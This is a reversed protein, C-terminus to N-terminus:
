FLRGQMDNAIAANKPVPIGLHKYGLETAVRGRQTRNIFGLQLLYPEYVDELTQSDEAIVDALTDLGVPGGQFKNILTKLLKYDLSDLGLDDVELQKFAQLCVAANIEGAHHVQAFDRLRKLMRNAIRPTGRSRTAVQMTADDSIKTELIESSRKVIQALEFNEYFELREVMGFRDRLPGSINGAKTTAAVLTFRPLKLRISKASPGKGIMIDLEFDELAPYLVEEINKSLRHIEDIFFVDGEKLNTLLAALDGPREIAPGSTVKIGVGMENAIVNALTTKGLGPPGYFLLHDLPENRKRAAELYVKLNEKLKQQGIFEKLLKPRLSFEQDDILPEPSIIRSEDSM